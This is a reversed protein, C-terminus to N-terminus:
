PEPPGKERFKRPHFGCYDNGAEAGFMLTCRRVHICDACTKGKPLEM